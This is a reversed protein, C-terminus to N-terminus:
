SARKAELRALFRPADQAEPSEPYAEQIQKYAAEAEEYQGALTYARGAELLYDPTTLKSKHYNAADMYLQAAKAYDGRDEHISAQGALAAAGLVGDTKEFQQYYTLAQDYQETRFLATAAYFSALNGAATGDYTNAIAVLGMRDGSGDLAQQYNGTEYTPLIQGLKQNAEVQQQQMYYIYGVIGLGVALVVAFGALIARQHSQIYFWTDVARDALTPDRTEETSPASAPKPSQLTSM